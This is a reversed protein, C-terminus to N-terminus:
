LGQIAGYLFESELWASEMHIREIIKPADKFWPDYISVTSTDIGAVVIAHDTSETWYPLYKTGVSVIVPISRGLTADLLAMPDGCENDVLVTTSLRSLRELNAFPTGDEGSGLLRRLREYRASISAM